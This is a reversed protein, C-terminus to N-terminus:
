RARWALRQVASPDSRDVVAEITREVDVVRAIARVLFLDSRDQMPPSISEGGFLEQVSTCGAGEAAAACLVGEERADLIAQVDSEDVPRMGSIDTGRTIQALVWSPATNLNIGGDGALPWVDVYPRLGDVLTGDFGEILRLEDVSLLSRNAARYPPESRQYLDDEPGGSQRVDDEDIWDILNAALERPEYRKDEPRGPLATIVRELFGTLFLSRTEAGSRGGGLDGGAAASQRGVTDRNAAQPADPADADAEADPSPSGLGIGGAGALANLNLRAGADEIELRLSTDSEEDVFIPELGARAWVDWQSDPLSEGADLRLDELLLTEALRIGGRALAEAAAARDRNVAIGADVAVRRVFTAITATLLLIFFLVIFLVVGDQHRRAQCRPASRLGQPPQTATM